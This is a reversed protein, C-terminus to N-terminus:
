TNRGLCRLGHCLTYISTNIESMRSEAAKIVYNMNEGSMEEFRNFARMIDVIATERRKM